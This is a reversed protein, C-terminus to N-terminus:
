AKRWRRCVLIAMPRLHSRRSRRGDCLQVTTTCDCGCTSKMRPQPRVRRRVHPKPCIPSATHVDVDVSRREPSFYDYEILGQQLLERELDDQVEIDDENPACVSMTTDDVTFPPQTKRDLRVHLQVSWTLSNHAPRKMFYIVFGTL